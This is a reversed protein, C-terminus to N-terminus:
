LGRMRHASCTPHRVIPRLIPPCSVPLREPQKPAPPESPRERRAQRELHHRHAWRTAETRNVVDLKRYTNRLHFKVTQETLWLRRAIEPNTLGESVLGLIERERKTLRRPDHRRPRKPPRRVPAARRAAPLYITRDFAQRVATALDASRTSRLCYADVRSRFAEAIAAPERRDSVAVLRLEPQARGLAALLAVSVSGDPWSDIGVVLLDPRHEEVLARVHDPSTSTAVVRVGAEELAREIWQVWLPHCDVVVGSRVPQTM